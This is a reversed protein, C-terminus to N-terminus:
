CYLTSPLHSFAYLVSTSHYRCSWLPTSQSFDTGTGSQGGRIGVLM